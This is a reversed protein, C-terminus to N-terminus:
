LNKLCERAEKTRELAFQCRSELIDTKQKEGIANRTHFEPESYQRILSTMTREVTQLNRFYTRNATEVRELRDLHGLKELQTWVNLMESCLELNECLLKEADEINRVKDEVSEVSGFVTLHFAM